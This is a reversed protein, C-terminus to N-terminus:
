IEKVFASEDIPDRDLPTTWQDLTPRSEEEEVAGPRTLLLEARSRKGILLLRAENHNTFLARALSFVISQMHALACLHDHMTALHTYELRDTQRYPRARERTLTCSRTDCSSFLPSEPLSMPTIHRYLACTSRMRSASCVFEM